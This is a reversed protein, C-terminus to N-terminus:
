PQNAAAQATMVTQTLHAEAQNAQAQLDQLEAALEAASPAGDVPAPQETVTTAPAAPLGDEGEQSYLVHLGDDLQAQFDNEMEQLALSPLTLQVGAPCDGRQSSEVELEGSELAAGFVVAGDLAAGEGPGGAIRTLRLLDGPSLTCEKGAMPLEPGRANAAIPTSVVFVHGEQMFWFPDDPASVSDTSTEAGSAQALQQHVENAIEQKAEPTIATTAPAYLSEDDSQQEADMPASDVNPASGADAGSGDGPQESSFGDALTQGLVYDTLWYSGDPYSPWPYFYLSFYAFWRRSGWNWRYPVPATWGGYVWGYFVPQYTYRPIYQRVVIRSTSAGSASRAQAANPIASYSAAYTRTRTRSGSLYTREVLTQGDQDITRELYGGRRGTSVLTSHDPRHVTIVRWGRAGHQVNIGNPGSTHLSVIKGDRRFTARTGMAAPSGASIAAAEPGPSFSALNGPAHAVGSQFRALTGDARLSYLRGDGTRVM